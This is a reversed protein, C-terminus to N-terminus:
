LAAWNVKAKERPQLTGAILISPCSYEFGDKRTFFEYWAQISQERGGYNARRIKMIDADEEDKQKIAALLKPGYKQVVEEFGKIGSLWVRFPSPFAWLWPTDMNGKEIKAVTGTCKTGRIQVREGLKVRVGNGMDYGTSLRYDIYYLCEAPNYVCVQDGDLLRKIGKGKFYVADYKAALTRTLNETAQIWRQEVDPHNMGPMDYGNQKWWKMMTNPSGFNITEIRPPKMDPGGIYYDKLGRTSGMNFDKAISKSRTFYVGFGLHHIPPPVGTNGYGRMEYGHSVNQARPLGKFFEFGQHQILDRKDETTGHWVPGFLRLKEADEPSIPKPMMFPLYRQIDAELWLRFEAM